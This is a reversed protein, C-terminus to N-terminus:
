TEYIDINWLALMLKKKLNYIPTRVGKCDEVIVDGAKTTYSWDAVYDCIHHGNVNMPYKPQDILGNIYGNQFMIHLDDCRKAEKKSAHTLGAGCPTRKARYKSQLKLAM